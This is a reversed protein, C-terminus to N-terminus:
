RGKALHSTLESTLMNAPSSIVSWLSLMGSKIKYMDYKKLPVSSGNRRAVNQIALRKVSTIAGSKPKRDEESARLEHYLLTAITLNGKRDLKSHLSISSRM